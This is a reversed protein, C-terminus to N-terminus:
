FGARVVRLPSTTVDYQTIVKTQKARDDKLWLTVRFSQGTGTPLRDNQVEYKVLHLGSKWQHDAAELPPEESKLADAPKGERWATLARDLVSRAESTDAPSAPSTGGCGPVFSLLFATTAVGAIQILTRKMETSDGKITGLPRLM